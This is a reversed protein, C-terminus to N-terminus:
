CKSLVTSTSVSRLFSCRPFLMCCVFGSLFGLHITAEGLFYVAFEIHRRESLLTFGVIRWFGRLGLSSRLILLRTVCICSFWSFAHCM